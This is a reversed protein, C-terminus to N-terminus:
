DELDSDSDNYRGGKIIKQTRRGLLDSAKSTPKAGKGGTPPDTLSGSYNIVEACGLRWELMETPFDDRGGMDDFGVIYDKSKGDKILAITPIVVIRLREALFPCKEANIKLFRTEMHKPALRHLHMDVIRCREASERYFHCVVNTSKKCEAFFDKEVPIEQYQGHGISRWEDEKERQKKLAVLRRQRLVDLEDEDLNDLRHIEADVQGEMIEAVKSLQQQLVQDM